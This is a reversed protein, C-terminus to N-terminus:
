WSKMQGVKQWSPDSKLVVRIYVVPEDGKRELKADIQEPELKYIAGTIADVALGILGGFLINGLVWANIKRVLVVEYPKYGELEIRIFHKDKRALKVAIPTKGKEEGNVIVKAGTPSSSIGIEQTRGSIITACGTLVIFVFISLLVKFARQYYLKRM